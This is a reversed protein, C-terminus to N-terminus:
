RAIETWTIPRGGSFEENANTRRTCYSYSRQKWDNGKALSFVFIQRRSSVLSYSIAGYKQVFPVAMQAHVGNYHEIFDADSMGDKKKIMIQGDDILLPM